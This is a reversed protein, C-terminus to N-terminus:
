VLASLFRRCDQPDGVYVNPYARLFPLLSEWAADSISQPLEQSKDTKESKM